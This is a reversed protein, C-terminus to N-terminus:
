PHALMRQYKRSVREIELKAEEIAEQPIDDTFGYERNLEIISDVYQSAKKKTSDANKTTM